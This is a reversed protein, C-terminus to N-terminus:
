KGEAWTLCSRVDDTNITRVGMGYLSEWQGADNPTWAAVEVGRASLRNVNATTITAFDQSVYASATITTPTKALYGARFGEDQATRVTSLDFSTVTVRDGIPDLRSHLREWQAPTPVTKLEVELRVGPHDLVIERVDFLSAIHSGDPATYSVAKTGTIDALKTSSRFLGMDANHLMYPYDTSSFRVDGDIVPAGDAIAATYVSETQETRGPEPAGRHAVCTVPGSTAGAPGSCIVASAAVIAGVAAGKLIRM